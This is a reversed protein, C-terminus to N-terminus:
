RVDNGGQNRAAQAKTIAWGTREKIILVAVIIAALIAPVTCLMLVSIAVTRFMPFWMVAMLVLASIWPAAGTWTLEQERILQEEIQQVTVHRGSKKSQFTDV